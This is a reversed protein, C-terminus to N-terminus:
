TIVPEDQGSHPGHWTTMRCGFLFFVTSNFDMAPLGCRWLVPSGHTKTYHPNKKQKIM